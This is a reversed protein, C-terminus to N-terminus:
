FSPLAKFTALEGGREYGRAFKFSIESIEGKSLEPSAELLHILEPTGDDPIYYKKEARLFALWLNREEETSIPGSSAEYQTAPNVALPLTEGSNLFASPEYNGMTKFGGLAHISDVGGLDNIFAFNSTKVQGNHLKYRITPLTVTEGGSPSSYTVSITIDWGEIEFNRGLSQHSIMAKYDARFTHVHSGSQASFSGSVQEGGRKYIIYDIRVQPPNGPSQKNLYSIYERSNPFTRRIQPAVTLPKSQLADIVSLASYTKDKYFGKVVHRYISAVTSSSDSIIRVTVPNIGAYEISSADNPLGTVSLPLANLIESFDINHPEGDAIAKIPFYQGSNLSCQLSEGEDLTYQVTGANGSYLVYPGNYVLSGM